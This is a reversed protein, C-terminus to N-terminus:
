TGILTLHDGDRIGAAELSEKPTLLHGEATVLRLFGPGLSHKAQRILDEVKSSQPLTICDDSRGSPLSVTVRLMQRRLVDVFFLIQLPTQAVHKQWPTEQFTALREIGEFM